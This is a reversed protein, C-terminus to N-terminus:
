KGKHRNLRGRKNKKTKSHIDATIRKTLTFSGAFHGVMEKKVFLEVFKTGNYMNLQKDSM